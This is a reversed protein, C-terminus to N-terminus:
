QAVPPTEAVVIDLGERRVRVDFAYVVVFAAVIGELLVTGAGVIPFYLLDIHTLATLVGAIGVLPLTGAESVVFVILGGIITRRRMGKAFARGMATGVATFPPLAETVVAVTALEYTMYIWSLVVIFAGLVAVVGIIGVVITIVLQNLAALVAILIVVLVYFILLPIMAVLGVVLFTLAVVVLPLWRALGVRYAQVFTARSGAYATAVITVIAGWMLLRVAFSVAFLTFTTANSAGDRSLAQAAAQAARPNGASSVLRGLDTFVHASKPALFAEFAILPVIVAALVAAIPVFDRVFLTVARDLLEGAGM